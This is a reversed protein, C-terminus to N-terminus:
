AVQSRMRVNVSLGIVFLLDDKTTMQGPVQKMVYLSRIDLNFEQLLIVLQSPLRSIRFFLLSARRASKTACPARMEWLPKAAPTSRRESIAGGFLL